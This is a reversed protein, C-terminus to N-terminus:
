GCNKRAWDNVDEKNWLVIYNQGLAAMDEAFVQQLASM